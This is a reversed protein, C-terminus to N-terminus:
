QPLVKEGLAGSFVPENLANQVLLLDESVRIMYKQNEESLKPFAKHLHEEKRDGM